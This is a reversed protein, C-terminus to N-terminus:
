NVTGVIAFGPPIIIHPIQRIVGHRATQRTQIENQRTRTPHV